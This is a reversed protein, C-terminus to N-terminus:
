KTAFHEKLWCELARTARVDDRNYSLIEDKISSRENAENSKLYDLYRVVSWQSGSEELNWQFDVLKKHKCVNKLGYGHLPLILSKKVPGQIDFLPSDEGLLLQIFPHSEMEYKEAYSKIQTVEFSSYHVIKLDLFEERLAEMEGLFKLWATKDQELTGDSWAYAFDSQSYPPRLWGWLYVNSNESLPNSEVDFHIYTGKPMEVPAIQYVKNNLLSKAQAVIRRKKASGKIYPVDPIDEPDAESLKRLTTYGQNRLHPASRSDVGQVLTINEEAIFNPRCTGDFPCAKCKSDSFDAAPPSEADLIERSHRLFLDAHKKDEKHLEERESSGLIVLVPHPSSHLRKYIAIEIIIAKKNDLTSSLKADAIQYNGDDRLILFDPKGIVNTEPDHFHPQYILPTKQEVLEQTHEVSTAEIYDGLQALVSEEHALGRDVILQEFADQRLVFDKPPYSEYYLRRECECWSRAMSANVQIGPKNSSNKM